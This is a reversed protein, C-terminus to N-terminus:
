YGLVLDLMSVVYIKVSRPDWERWPMRSLFYDLAAQRSDWEKRRGSISKILRDLHERRENIHADFTERDVLSPEVLIIQRYPIDKM